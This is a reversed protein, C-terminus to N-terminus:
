FDYVGFNLGAEHMNGNRYHEEQSRVYKYFIIFGILANRRM